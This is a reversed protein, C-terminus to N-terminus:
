KTSLLSVHTAMYLNIAALGMQCFKGDDHIWFHIVMKESGDAHRKQRCHSTDESKGIGLGEAIQTTNPSLTNGKDNVSSDVKKTGDVYSRTHGFQLSHYFLFLEDKRDDGKTM